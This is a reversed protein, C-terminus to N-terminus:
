MKINELVMGTQEDEEIGIYLMYGILIVCNSNLESGDGSFDLGNDKIFKEVKEKYSM